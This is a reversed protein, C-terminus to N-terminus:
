QDYAGPTRNITVPTWMAGPPPAISPTADGAERPLLTKARSVNLVFRLSPKDGVTEVDFLTQRPINVLSGRTAKFPAQGEIDVNVEGEIVAFWERTDPHFRRSVKTGPAASVYEGALRGDDITVERWIM